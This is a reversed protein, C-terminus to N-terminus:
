GKRESLIRLNRWLIEFSENTLVQATARKMGYAMDSVSPMKSKVLLDLVQGQHM